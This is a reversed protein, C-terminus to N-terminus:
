PQETGEARKEPWSAAILMLGPVVFTLYFLSASRVIALVGFATSVFGLILLVSRWRIM